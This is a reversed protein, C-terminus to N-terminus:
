CRWKWNIKFSQWIEVESAFLGSGGDLFLKPQPSPPTFPIDHCMKRKKKDREHGFNSVRELVATLARLDHIQQSMEEKYKDVRSILAAVTKEKEALIHEMEGSSLSSSPRDYEKGSM